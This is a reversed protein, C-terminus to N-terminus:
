DDTVNFRFSRDREPPIHLWYAARSGGGSLALIMLTKESRGRPEGIHFSAKSAAPEGTTGQVNTHSYLSCGTLLALAPLWGMTPRRKM